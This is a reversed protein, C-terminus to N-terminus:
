EALTRLFKRMEEGNQRIKLNLLKNRHNPNESDKVAKWSPHGVILSAIEVHGDMVAHCLPMLGMRDPIMVNLKNNKVLATVMKVNGLIVADHLPTKSADDPHTQANINAGNLLLCETTELRGNYVAMHLPTRGYEGPANVLAKCALLRQAIPTLGKKAAWHLPQYGLRDPICPDGKNELLINLVAIQDNFVALHVPAYGQPNLANVGDRKNWIWFKGICQRLVEENGAASASWIDSAEAHLWKCRLKFLRNTEKQLQFLRNTLSTKSEMMQNYSEFKLSRQEELHSKLHDLNTQQTLNLQGIDEIIKNITELWARKLEEKKETTLPIELGDEVISERQGLLSVYDEFQNQRIEALATELQLNALEFNREDPQQALLAKVLEIQKDFIEGILAVTGRMVEDVAAIRSLVEAAEKERIGQLEAVRNHKNSDLVSPTNSIASKGSTEVAALVVEEDIRLRSSAFHIAQGNQRVAILVFEKDNKLEESAYQLALGNQKIAALVFNKDNRLADCAFQLALGNQNAAAFALKWDKQLEESAFQLALGNQSVAALVIERDSRFIVNTFRLELGNQKITDLVFERNVRQEDTSNELISAIIVPQVNSYQLKAASNSKIVPAPRSSLSVSPVKKKQLSANILSLEKEFISRLKEFVKAIESIGKISKIDGLSELTFNTLSNLDGVLKTLLNEEINKETKLQDIKKAILEYGEQIAMIALGSVSELQNDGICLRAANLLEVIEKSHDNAIELSEVSEAPKGNTPLPINNNNGGDSFIPQHINHPSGSSFGVQQM